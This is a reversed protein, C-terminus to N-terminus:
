VGGVAPPSGAATLRVTRRRSSFTGQRPWGRGTGGPRKARWLYDFVLWQEPARRVYKELCVTYARVIAAVAEDEPLSRDPMVPAEFALTFGRGGRLLFGPVVPCNMRVALRAPGAPLPAPVGFLPARVVPPAFVRDGLLAVLENRRLASVIRRAQSGLRAVRVGKMARRRVFFRDVMGSRHGLAVASVPWGLLSTFIGALEWNGLHATLSIVGRGRRFAAELHERGQVTVLRAVKDRDLHPILMFEYLYLGFNHYAARTLAGAGDLPRGLGALMTEYNARVRRRLVPTTLFRLWALLGVLPLVLGRPLRLALFACLNYFLFM